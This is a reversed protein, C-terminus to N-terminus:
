LSCDVYRCFYYLFGTSHFVLNDFCSSLFPLFDVYKWCFATETLIQLLAGIYLIMIIFFSLVHYTTCLVYIGGCSYVLEYLMYSHLTEDIYSLKIGTILCLASYFAQM